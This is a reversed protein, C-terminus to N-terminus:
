GDAFGTRELDLILGNKLRAARRQSPCQPLWWSSEQGRPRPRFDMRWEESHGRCLMM